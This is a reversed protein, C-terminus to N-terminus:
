KKGKRNKRKLEINVEDDATGLEGDPGATVTVEMVGVDVVVRPEVLKPKETPSVRVATSSERHARRYWDPLRDFSIKGTYVWGAVKDWSSNDPFDECGGPPIIKGFIRLTQPSTKPRGPPTKDTLNHVIM